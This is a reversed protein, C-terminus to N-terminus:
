TFNHTSKEVQSSSVVTAIPELQGDAQFKEDEKLAETSSEQHEFYEAIMLEAEEAPNEEVNINELQDM